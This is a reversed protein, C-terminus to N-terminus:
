GGKVKEDIAAMMKELFDTIQEVNPKKNKIYGHTMKFARKREKLYAKTYKDM